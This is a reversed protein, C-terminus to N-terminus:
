TVTRMAGSGGGLACRCVLWAGWRRLRCLLLLLLLLLAPITTRGARGGGDRVVGGSWRKWDVVVVVVGVGVRRGGRAIPDLMASASAPKPKLTSNMTKTHM